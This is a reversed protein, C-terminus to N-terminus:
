AAAPEGDDPLGSSVGAPRRKVVFRHGNLCYFEDTYLADRFLRSNCRMCGIKTVNTRRTTTAM